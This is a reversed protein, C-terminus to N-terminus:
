FVTVGCEFSLIAAAMVASQRHPQLLWFFEGGPEPDALSLCRPQAAGGLVQQCSLITSGVFAGVDDGCTMEAVACPM